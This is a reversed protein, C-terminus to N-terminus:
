RLRQLTLPAYCEQLLPSLVMASGVAGKLRSGGCSFVLQSVICSVYFMSIGDSGTQEFIQEGLPFLIMGACRNPNCPCFLSDVWEGYSLADLVNLLVGLFVCPLLTFPRKIGRQWIAKKNWKSPNCVASVVAASRHRFVQLSKQFQNQKRSPQDHQGELDSDTKTLNSQSYGNSHQETLLPTREGVDNQEGDSAGPQSLGEDVHERNSIQSKRRGQNGSQSNVMSALSPDQDPFNVKTELSAPESSEQIAEPRFPEPSWRVDPSARLGESFYQSPTEDFEQQGPSIQTPHSSQPNPSSQKLAKSALEVTHDRVGHSSYEAPDPLFSTLTLTQVHHM